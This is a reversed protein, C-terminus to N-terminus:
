LHYFWFFVLSLECVLPTLEVFWGCCHFVKTSHSRLHSVEQRGLFFCLAVFRLAVGQLTLGLLHLFDCLAGERTSRQSPLFIGSGNKEVSDHTSFKFRQHGKKRLHVRQFSSMSFFLTTDLMIFIRVCFFQSSTRPYSEVSFGGSSWPNQFPCHRNQVPFSQWQWPCWSESTGHTNFPFTHQGGFTESQIKQLREFFTGWWEGGELFSVYGLSFSFCRSVITNWGDM